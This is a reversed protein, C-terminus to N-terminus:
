GGDGDGTIVDLKRDVKGFEGGAPAAFSGSGAIGFVNTEHLDVQRGM